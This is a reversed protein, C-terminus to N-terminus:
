GGSPKMTKSAEPRSTPRQNSAANGPWHGGEAGGNPKAADLPPWQIIVRAMDWVEFGDPRDKRAGFLEFGKDIAEQDSLGALPAVDVIHGGRMFYCRM